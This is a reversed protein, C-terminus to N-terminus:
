LLEQNTNTEFPVLYKSLPSTSTTEVVLTPLLLVGCVVGRGPQAQTKGIDYKHTHMM